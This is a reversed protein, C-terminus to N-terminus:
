LGRERDENSIVNGLATKCEPCRGHLQVSNNFGLGCGPCSFRFAFTPIESLGMAPEQTETAHLKLTEMDERLLQATRQNASPKQMTYTQTKRSMKYIDHLLLGSLILLIAISHLAQQSWTANITGTTHLVATVIANITVGLLQMARWKSLAFLLLAMLGTVMFIVLSNRTLELYLALAQITGGIALGSFMRLDKKQYTM